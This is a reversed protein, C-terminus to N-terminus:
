TLHMVQRTLNGEEHVFCVPYWRTNFDFRVRMMHVCVHLVCAILVAFLIGNILDFGVRKLYVYHERPM